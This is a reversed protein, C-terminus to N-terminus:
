WSMRGKRDVRHQECTAASEPPPIKNQLLASFCLLPGSICPNFCLPFLLSNNNAPFLNIGEKVLYINFFNRSLIKKLFVAYLGAWLLWMNQTAATQAELVWERFVCVFSEWGPAKGDESEM